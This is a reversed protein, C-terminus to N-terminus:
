LEALALRDDTLRRSDIQRGILIRLDDNVDWTNVNM